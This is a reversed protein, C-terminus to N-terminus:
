LRGLAGARTDGASAGCEAIGAETTLCADLLQLNTRWTYLQAVLASAADALQRCRDHDRLLSVVAEAFQAADEAVLAHRGVLVDLGELALGTAVVPVRMAMAELVKNQVGRGLRLPAVYVRAQRFYPRVDPVSGAVVLAGNAGKAQQLLRRSPRHGVAVLCAEPVQRRILPMVNRVFFLVADVNPRYDLAGTFLLTPSGEAPAGVAPAFYKTDVGNAVVRVEAGGRCFGRFLDAEAQTVFLVHDVSHGIWGEFARLRRCELSYAWRLPGRSHEAYQRWKESDVDIVDVISRVAKALPLYQAMVSCFVWAVDFQCRSAARSIASRMRRSGFYGESLSRGRLLAWLGRLLAWRKDLRVITVTRCYERMAAAGDADQPEDVFAVLHVDHREALHRVHHYSRIKDGKNPPYPIRHALYLIRM